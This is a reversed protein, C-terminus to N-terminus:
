PVYKVVMSIFLSDQWTSQASRLSDKFLNPYNPYSHRANDSEIIGQVLASASTM